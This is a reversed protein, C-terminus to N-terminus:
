RSPRGLRSDVNMERALRGDLYDSVSALMFLLLAGAQAWLTQTTLLLLVVPTLAIRTVTLINPLHRRM